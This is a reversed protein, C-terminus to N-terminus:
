SASAFIAIPVCCISYILTTRCLWKSTEKPESIVHTLQKSPSSPLPIETFIPQLFVSFSYVPFRMLYMCIHPHYLFFRFFLHFSLFFSHIFRYINKRYKSIFTCPTAEFWCCCCFCLFFCLLLFMRM